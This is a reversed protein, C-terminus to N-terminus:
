MDDIKIILYNQMCCSIFFLWTCKNSHWIVMSYFEFSNFKMRLLLIWNRTILPGFFYDLHIFVPFTRIQMSSLIINTEKNKFHQFWSSFSQFNTLIVYFRIKTDDTPWSPSLPSCSNGRFFNKTIVVNKSIVLWLIIFFREMNKKMIHVYLDMDEYM